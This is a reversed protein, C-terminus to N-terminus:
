AARPFLLNGVVAGIVAGGAASLPPVWNGGIFHNALAAAIVAGLGALLAAKWSGRTFM